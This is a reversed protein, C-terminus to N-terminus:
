VKINIKGNAASITQRQYIRTKYFVVLYFIDFWMFYLWLNGVLIFQLIQILLGVFFSMSAVDRGVRKYIVYFFLFILLLGIFGQNLLISLYLNDAEEAPLHTVVEKNTYYATAGIGQGLFKEYVSGGSFANAAVVMNEAREAGSYDMEDQNFSAFAFMKSSLADYVEGIQPFVFSVVILSLSVFVVSVALYRVFKGNSSVLIRLFIVICIAVYGFSSFTFFILLFTIFAWWKYKKFESIFYYFCPAIVPILYGPESATGSLRQMGFEASMGHHEFAGFRITYGALQLLFFCVEIIVTYKFLKNIYLDSILIVRDEAIRIFVYFLFGRIFYKVAFEIKIHTGAIVGFVFSYVLFVLLINSVLNDKRAYKLRYMIYTVPCIGMLIEGLRMPTTEGVMFVFSERLPYTLLLLILFYNIIKKNPLVERKGM